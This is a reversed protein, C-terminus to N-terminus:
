IDRLREADENVVLDCNEFEDIPGELPSETLKLEVVLSSELENHFEGGNTLVRSHWLRELYPILDNLEPLDPRTVFIM